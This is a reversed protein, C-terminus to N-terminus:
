PMMKCQDVLNCPQGDQWFSSISINYPILKPINNMMDHVPLLKIYDLENHILQCDQLMVHSCIKVKSRVDHSEDKLFCPKLPLTFNFMNVKLWVIILWLKILSCKSGKRWNLSILFSCSSIMILVHIIIWILWLHLRLRLLMSPYRRWTVKVGVKMVHLVGLVRRKSLKTLTNLLLHLLTKVGHPLLPLTVHVGTKLLKPLVKVRGHVLGDHSTKLINLLPQM